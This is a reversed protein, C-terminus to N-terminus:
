YRVVNFGKRDRFVLRNTEFAVEFEYYGPEAGEPITLFLDVSWRGGQLDYDPESDSWIANGRYLVRRTLAGRLGNYGRSPCLVYVFRQNIENNPAVRVPQLQQSQLLAFPLSRSACRYEAWVREPPDIMSPGPTRPAKFIEKAVTNFIEQVNRGAAGSCSNVLLALAVLLAPSLFRTRPQSNRM